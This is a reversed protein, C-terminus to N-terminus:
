SLAPEAGRKPPADASLIRRDPLERELVSVVRAVTYGDSKRTVIVREGAETVIHVAGGPATEIRSVRLVNM